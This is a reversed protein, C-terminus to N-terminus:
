FQRAVNPNADVWQIIQEVSLSETKADLAAAALDRNEEALLGLWDQELLWGQIQENSLSEPTVGLGKSAGERGSEIKADEYDQEVVLYEESFKRGVGIKKFNYLFACSQCFVLAALSSVVEISPTSNATKQHWVEESVSITFSRDGNRIPANCRNCYTIDAYISVVNDKTGSDSMVSKGELEDLGM